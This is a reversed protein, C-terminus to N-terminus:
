KTFTTVFSPWTSKLPHQLLSLFVLGGDFTLSTGLFGLNIDFSLWGHSHRLLKKLQPNLNEFSWKKTLHITVGDKESSLILMWFNPWLHGYVTFM